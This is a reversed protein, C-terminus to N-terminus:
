LWFYSANLVQGALLAAGVVLLALGAAQVRDRASPARVLGRAVLALGVLGVLVWYVPSTSDAVTALSSFCEAVFLGGLLAHALAGGRTRRRLLASAAGIVPGALVAVVVWVRMDYYLGDLEAGVYYGVNLLWFAVVGVLAGRRADDTLVVVLGVAVFSWGSASNTISDIWSPLASQLWFTAVGALLGVVVTVVGRVVDARRDRRTSFSQTSTM